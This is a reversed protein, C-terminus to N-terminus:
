SRGRSPRRWRTKRTLIPELENHLWRPVLYQKPPIFTSKGNQIVQRGPSTEVKVADYAQGNVVVRDGGREFQGLKRVLGNEELADMLAAKNNTHIARTLSQRLADASSEYDDALGTAFNNHLNKPKAYQQRDVRQAQPGHEAKDVPVLPYYTDLPGLATSFIGENLEHSEAMPQEVLDKYTKLGAQFDPHTTLAGFEDPPMVEAVNQAARTFTQNLFQRLTNFAHGEALRAATEALNRDFGARDEVHELVPLVNPMSRTLNDDTARTAFDAMQQWRQEIGSLRSQILARFFDEKPIGKLASVLKPM